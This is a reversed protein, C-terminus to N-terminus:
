PSFIKQEISGRVSIYCREKGRITYTAQFGIKEPLLIAVDGKKKQNMTTSRHRKTRYRILLMNNSQKKIDDLLKYKRITLSM